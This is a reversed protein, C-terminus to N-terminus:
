GQHLVVTETILKHTHIKLLPVFIRKLSLWVFVSDPLWLAWAVCIEESMM